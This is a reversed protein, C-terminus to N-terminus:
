KLFFGWLNDIGSRGDGATATPTPLTDYEHRILVAGVYNGDAKKTYMVKWESGWGKSFGLLYDAGTLATSADRAMANNAQYYTNWQGNFLNQALFSGDGTWASNDQSFGCGSPIAPSKAAWIGTAKPRVYASCSAYFLADGADTVLGVGEATRNAIAVPASWAASASTASAGFTKNGAGDNQDWTLLIDNTPGVVLSRLTADNGLTDLVIGETASFGTAATGAYYIIDDNSSTSQVRQAAVAIGGVNDLVAAYPQAYNIDAFARVQFTPADFARWALAGRQNGFGTDVPAIQNYWRFQVAVDGRNNILPVPKYSLANSGLPVYPTDAIRVPSSWTNTSATYVSSHIYACPFTSQSYSQAGCAAQGAWVAHANGNPAVAITRNQSKFATPDYYPILDSDIRVPASWQPATGASGPTGRVAYLKATTRNGKVVIAVVRGEQDMGADFGAVPEDDGDLQQGATWARTTCTVGVSVVNATAVTGSANSLVCNQKSPLAAIAVSYAAGPQLATDFSFQGTPVASSVTEDEANNIRLKISGVLGSVTGGVTYTGAPPPPPSPSPAPSPAPAEVEGSSGGGSCGMLTGAVLAFLAYHVARLGSNSNTM